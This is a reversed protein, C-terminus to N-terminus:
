GAAPGGLERDIMQIVGEIWAILEDALGIQFNNNGNAVSIIYNRMQSGTASTAMHVFFDSLGKPTYFDNVMQADMSDHIKQFGNTKTSIFSETLNQGRDMQEYVGFLASLLEKNDITRIASSAKMTEFSSTTAIFVDWTAFVDRYSELTDTPINEPIGAVIWPKVVRFGEIDRVFNDRYARIAEINIKLEERVMTLILRSEKKQVNRQILGSGGFTIIIGIVVTALQRLFDSAKWNAM